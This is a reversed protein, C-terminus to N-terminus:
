KNIDPYNSSKTYDEIYKKYEDLYMSTFDHNKKLNLLKNNKINETITQETWFEYDQNLSCNSLIFLFILFTIIKM